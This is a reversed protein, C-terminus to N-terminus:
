ARDRSFFGPSPLQEAAPRANGRVPHYRPVRICRDQPDIKSDLASLLRLLPCTEPGSAPADTASVTPYSLALTLRRADDFNFKELAILHPRTHLTFHSLLFSLSLPLSLCLDISSFNAVLSTSFERFCSPSPDFVSRRLRLQPPVRFPLLKSLSFRRLGHFISFAFVRGPEALVALVRSHLFHTQLPRFIDHNTLSLSIDIQPRITYRYVHTYISRHLIPLSPKKNPVIHVSWNTQGPKM